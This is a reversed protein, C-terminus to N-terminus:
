DLHESVFDVVVLAPADMEPGARDAGDVRRVNDPEVLDVPIPATADHDGRENFMEIEAAVIFVRISVSPAMTAAAAARLHRSGCVTGDDPLDNVRRWGESCAPTPLDSIGTISKRKRLRCKIPFHAGM